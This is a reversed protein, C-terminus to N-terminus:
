CEDRYIRRIKSTETVLHRRVNQHCCQRRFARSFRFFSIRPVSIVNLLPIIDLRAEEEISTPENDFTESELSQLKSEIEIDSGVDGLLKVFTDRIKSHRQHTYPAM